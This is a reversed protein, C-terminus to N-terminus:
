PTRIVRKGARVPALDDKHTKGDFFDVPLTENGIIDAFPAPPLTEELSISLAGVLTQKSAIGVVRHFLGDPNLISGTPDIVNVQFGHDKLAQAIIEAVTSKGSGAPGTIAIRLNEM